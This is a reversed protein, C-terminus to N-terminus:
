SYFFRDSLASHASLPMYGSTRKWLTNKRPMDHHCCSRVPCNFTKSHSHIHFTVTSPTMFSPHGYQMHRCGGARCHSLPMEPISMPAITRTQLGLWVGISVICALNIPEARSLPRRSPQIAVATMSQELKTTAFWVPHVGRGSCAAQQQIYVLMRRRIEGSTKSIGHSEQFRKEATNLRRGIECSLSQSGGTLAKMSARRPARPVRSGHVAPKEDVASTSHRTQQTSTEELM